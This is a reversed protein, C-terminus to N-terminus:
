TATSRRSASAAKRSTARRSPIMGASSVAWASAHTSAWRSPSSSRTHREPRPSLSRASTSALAVRSRRRASPCRACRRAREGVAALARRQHGVHHAAKRRELLRQPDALGAHLRAGVHDLEAHGVRVREGVARHDVGGAGRREGGPGVERAHELDRAGRARADRHHQHTVRVHDERGARLRKTSRRACVPAQPSITGSRGGSSAGSTSRAHSSARGRARAAPRAWSAAPAGPRSRPWPAPSGRCPRPRRCSRRARPERRRAERSTIARALALVSTGTASPKPIM